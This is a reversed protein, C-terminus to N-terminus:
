VISGKWASGAECWRSLSQMTLRLSPWMLTWLCTRDVHIPSCCSASMLAAALAAHSCRTTLSLPLSFPPSLLSPLNTFALRGSRTCKTHTIRITLLPHQSIPPSAQIGKTGGLNRSRSPCQTSAHAAYRRAREECATALWGVADAYPGDSRRPAAISSDVPLVVEEQWPARSARDTVSGPVFPPLVGYGPM